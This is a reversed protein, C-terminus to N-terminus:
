RPSAPTSSDRPVPAGDTSRCDTSTSASAATYRAAADRPEGLGNFTRGLMYKSLHVELPKGLFRVKTTNPVLDGTGTFVQVLTAKESLSKVQGHRIRGNADRIDVLEGYGVGTVNEILIFPGEIDKVGIYEAQPM